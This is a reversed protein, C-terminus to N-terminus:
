DLQFDLDTFKEFAAPRSVAFFEGFRSSGHRCFALELCFYRQGNKGFSSIV